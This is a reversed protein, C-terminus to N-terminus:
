LDVCFISSAAFPTIAFLQPRFSFASQVCFSAPSLITNRCNSFPNSSASKTTDSIREAKAPLSIKEEGIDVGKELAKRSEESLPRATEVYYVKKVHKKPSLLDHALGGDNTKILLGETDRDLRGVPFLDGYGTDKLLDSVTGHMRDRTASVVGQPKNLMYYVYKKYIIEKERFSVRDKGEEIKYEPKRVVEGNVRVLGQKLYEKVQSRSGLNAGSLFKDLRLM